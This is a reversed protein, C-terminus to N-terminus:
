RLEEAEAFEVPRVSEVKPRFQQATIVIAVSGVILAAGVLSTASLKEHAFLTGLIMAVMPNVYAYTAVKRPDCHHLLWIYATFGVLAGILVLYAFALWSVTTIHAPNFGHQEGTVFGALVLLVGGCVMQQSAAVLPSGGSKAVRSYLSGASWILSTILLIGMGLHPHSGGATRSSQGLLCAVGLFGGTLGVWFLRSPRGAMGTFWGLLTVYIPVTAVMVAALGSDIFKESITVGGNGCLLLCAGIIVAPMWTSAAPPAAGRRHAIAYLIVGALFYRVGAMLFPPISSIAILIGLYTSGWIIYVAAFALIIRSRSPASM